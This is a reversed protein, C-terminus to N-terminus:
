LNSEWEKWKSLEYDAIKDRLIQYEKFITKLSVVEDNIRENMNLILTPESLLNFNLHGSPQTLVPYLSFSYCHIGIEPTKSFKEFPVIDIASIIELFVKSFDNIKSGFISGRVRLFWAGAVALARDSPNQSKRM